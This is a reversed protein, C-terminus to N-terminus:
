ACRGAPVAKTREVAIPRVTEITLSTMCVKQLCKGEVVGVSDRTAEASTCTFTQNIVIDNRYADVGNDEDGDEGPKKELALPNATM